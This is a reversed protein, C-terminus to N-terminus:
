RRRRVRYLPCGGNQTHMADATIAGDLPLPGLLEPLKPIENTKEEVELQGIVGAEDHLIASLLHPARQGATMLVAWPKAMGPSARDPSLISVSFGNDLGATSRIRM